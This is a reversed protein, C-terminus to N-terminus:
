NFTTQPSWWGGVFRTEDPHHKELMDGTIHESSSLLGAWGYYEFKKYTRTDQRPFVGVLFWDGRVALVVFEQRDHDCWINYVHGVVVNEVKYYTPMERLSTRHWPQTRMIVAIVYLAIGGLIVYGILVWNLGLWALARQLDPHQWTDM